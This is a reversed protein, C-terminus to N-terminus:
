RRPAHWAASITRLSHAGTGPSNSIRSHKTSKAIKSGNPAHAIQGDQKQM